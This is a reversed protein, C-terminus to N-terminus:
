SKARKFLTQPFYSNEVRANSATNTWRMGILCCPILTQLFRFKVVKQPINPYRDLDDSLGKYRCPNDNYSKCGM